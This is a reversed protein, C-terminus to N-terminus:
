RVKVGAAAAAAAFPVRTERRGIVRRRAASLPSRRALAFHCRVVSATRRPGNEGTGSHTKTESERDYRQVAVMNETRTRCRAARRCHDTRRAGGGCSVTMHPLLDARTRYGSVLSM